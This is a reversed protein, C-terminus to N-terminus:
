RTGWLVLGRAITEEPSQPFLLTRGGLAARVADRAFYLRASGGAVVVQDFHEPRFGVRGPAAAVAAQFQTRAEDFLRDLEAKSISIRTPPLGAPVVCYQVHDSRGEGFSASAEEKFQRAFLSLARRDEDALDAALREALWNELIMDFWVGGLPHEVQDIVAPGAADQRDEVVSLRLGHSGWDIVLFHQTKASAQGPPPLCSAVAALPEPVLQVVPFGAQEVAGALVNARGEPWDAPVAVATASAENRDAAGPGLVEALRYNLFKLFLRASDTTASGEQGLEEAFELSVDSPEQVWASLARNGFAEVGADGALRVASPVMTRADVRIFDPSSILRGGEARGYALYTCGRGLALGTLTRPGRRVVAERIHRVAAKMSRQPDPKPPSSPAIQAPAPPGQVQVAAGAAVLAGRIREATEATSGVVLVVPAAAMFQAAGAPDLGLGQRLALLVRGRYPGPNLLTVQYGGAAPAPTPQPPPPAPAAAFPPPAPAAASPSPGPAAAFPAEAARSRPTGCTVCFRAEASLSAGCSPCFVRPSSPPIGM